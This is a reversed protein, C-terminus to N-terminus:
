LPVLFNTECSLGKRGAEVDGPTKKETRGAGFGLM